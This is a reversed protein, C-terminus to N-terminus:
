LHFIGHKVGRNEHSLCFSPFNVSMQPKAAMNNFLRVDAYVHHRRAFRCINNVSAQSLLVIITSPSPLINRLEDFMPFAFAFANTGKKFIVGKGRFLYINSDVSIKLM